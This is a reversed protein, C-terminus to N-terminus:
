RNAAPDIAVFEGEDIVDGRVRYLTVGSPSPVVDNTPGIVAAALHFRTAGPLPSLLLREFAHNHGSLSLTFNYDKLARFLDTANSVIHRYQM